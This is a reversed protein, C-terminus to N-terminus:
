GGDWAYLGAHESGPDGALVEAITLLADGTAAPRSVRM